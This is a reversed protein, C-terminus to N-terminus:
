AGHRFGFSAGFSGRWGRAGALRSADFSACWCWWVWLGPFRHSCNGLSCCLNELYHIPVHLINAVATVHLLFPNDDVGVENHVVAIADSFLCNLLLEDVLHNDTLKGVDVASRPVCDLKPSIDASAVGIWQIGLVIGRLM